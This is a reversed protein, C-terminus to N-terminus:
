RIEFQKASGQSQTQSQGPSQAPLSTSGATSIRAEDENQWQVSVSDVIANPPGQHCWAILSDIGEKSGEAEIEVSGDALNRVWGSLALAQAKQKTSHRYFVGQVRGRILIKARASHM